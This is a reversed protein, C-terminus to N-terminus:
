GDGNCTILQDLSCAKRMLALVVMCSGIVVNLDLVSDRMVVFVRYM